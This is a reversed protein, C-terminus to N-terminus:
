MWALADRWLLNGLYRGPLLTFLGAVVCAGLYLNRMAQRHDAIRGQIVATLAVALGVFTMVTFLHIPSFGFFSWRGHDRIFVSSVAAGLMLLVWTYGAARHLRSGKRSWLALPGLLLAGLATLLHIQVALTLQGFGPLLTNM